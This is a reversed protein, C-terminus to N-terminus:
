CRTSHPSGNRIRSRSAPSTKLGQADLFRTWSFHPTAKDADAVSVKHYQNKPDRAEIPSLSAKADQTELALIWQANQKTEDAAVGALALTKEIHAVYDNRIHVYDPKDELYYAREPLGLGDEGVFGIITQSNKFDPYAGFGFVGGLGRAQADTLYGALDSVNKIAAIKALEPKLPTIGAKEIAAEDMGTAYFDGLKQEITGVAAKSMAPDEILARQSKLSAERLEDFTGWRTRDAPVPNAATWKGNVYAYFDACPQVKGDLSAPDIRSTPAPAAAIATASLAFAIALYLLNHIRLNM